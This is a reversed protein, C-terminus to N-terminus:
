QPKTNFAVQISVRVAVPTGDNKTAPQFRYQSVAEAAEVDLGYGVPKLICVEQPVGQTDVVFSITSPDPKFVNFASRTKAENSLQAPVYHKLKPAKIDGGIRYVGDVEPHFSFSSPCAQAPSAGNPQAPHYTVSSTPSAPQQALIGTATTALLLFIWKSNKM